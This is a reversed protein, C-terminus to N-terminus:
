GGAIKRGTAKVWEEISKRTWVRGSALEAEPVPFGEEDILRYVYQRSVGLMSAIEPVGVLHHPVSAFTTSM